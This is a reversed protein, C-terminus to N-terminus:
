EDILGDGDDDVGCYGPCGDPHDPHEGVVEKPNVWINAALDPHRYNVGSDIIAVQCNLGGVWEDWAQTARADAQPVGQDGNVLQGTNRLGWLSAFETDNPTATFTIEYDPEAYTVHIDGQFLELDSAWDAAPVTVLYLGEVSRFECLQVAGVTSNVLDVTEPSTGVQFRVLIHEPHHPAYTDSLQAYSASASTLAVICLGYFMGGWPSSREAAQLPGKSGLVSSAGHRCPGLRLANSGYDRM